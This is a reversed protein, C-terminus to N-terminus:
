WHNAIFWAACGVCCSREYLFRSNKTVKSDEYFVSKIDPVVDAPIDLGAITEIDEIKQICRSIKAAAMARLSMINPDRRVRFVMATGLFDKFQVHVITNRDVDSSDDEKYMNRNWLLYCLYTFFLNILMVFYHFYSIRIDIELSQWINIGERVVVEIDFEKFLSDEVEDAIKWYDMQHREFSELLVKMVKKWTKEKEQEIKLCEEVDERKVQKMRMERVALFNILFNSSSLQKRISM